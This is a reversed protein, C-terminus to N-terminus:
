KETNPEDVAAIPAAKSKKVPATKPTDKLAAIEAKLAAIEADLAAIEAVHDIYAKRLAGVETPIADKTEGTETNRINFGRDLYSQIESESIACVKNGKEAYIM